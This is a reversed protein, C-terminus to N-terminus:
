GAMPMLQQIVQWARLNELITLGALDYNGLSAQLTFHKYIEFDGYVFPLTYLSFLVSYCTVIWWAVSGWRRMWRKEEDGKEM